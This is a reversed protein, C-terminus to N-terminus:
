EGREGENEGEWHGKSLSRGVGVAPPPEGVRQGGGPDQQTGVAVVVEMGTWWFPSDARCGGGVAAEGRLQQLLRGALRIAGHLAQPGISRPGAAAGGREVPQTAGALIALPGLLVPVYPLSSAPLPGKEALKPQGAAAWSTGVEGVFLRRPGPTM